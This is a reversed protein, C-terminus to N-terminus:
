YRVHVAEMLQDQATRVMAGGERADELAQFLEMRTSRIEDRQAALTNTMKGAWRQLHDARTMTEGNTSLSSRTSDHWDELM